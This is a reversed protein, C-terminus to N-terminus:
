PKDRWRKLEAEPPGNELWRALERLREALALASPRPEYRGTRWDDANDLEWDWSYAIVDALSIQWRCEGDNKEDFPLRLHLMAADIVPAGGGGDNGFKRWIVPLTLTPPTERLIEAVGETAAKCILYDLVDAADHTDFCLHSLDIEASGKVREMDM